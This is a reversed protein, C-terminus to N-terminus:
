QVTEGEKKGAALEQGTWVPESELEPTAPQPKNPLLFGFSTGAASSKLDLEGGHVAAVIRCLALGLGVGTRGGLTLAQGQHFPQFVLQQLEPPIGPGADSIRFVTGRASNEAAVVIPSGPTSYKCANDILNDLLQSVLLADCWLWPLGADIKVQIRGQERCRNVASGVLEEASQWDCQLVVGPADLRALELINTTMHRLHDSEEVIRRALQHRQVDNLRSDMRDLVSASSMITALPTRFDHSIATLLTARLTQERAFQDSEQQQKLSHQRALAMGMQDCLAQLQARQDQPLSLTRVLAAGYAMSGGRLPLYVCELSEEHGSGPGLASANRLCRWLWVIERAEATGAMEIEDGLDEDPLGGRLAMVVADAGSVEKFL